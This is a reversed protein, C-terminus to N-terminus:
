GEVANNFAAAAAEAAAEGRAIEALKVPDSFANAVLSAVPLVDLAETFVSTIDVMEAHEERAHTSIIMERYRSRIDDSLGTLVGPAEILAALEPGRNKTALEMLLQQQRGPAMTRFAARIESAFGDPKLNVKASIQRDLEVAREQVIQHVRQRMTAIQDKLKTAAATVRKTHAAPTITPDPNAHMSNLADTSAHLKMAEQSLALRVSYANSPVDARLRDAMSKLATIKPIQSSM